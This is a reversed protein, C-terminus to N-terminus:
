ARGVTLYRDDNPGAPPNFKAWFTADDVAQALGAGTTLVAHEITDVTANVIVVEYLAENPPVHPPLRLKAVTLNGVIRAV